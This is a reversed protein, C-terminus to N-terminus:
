EFFCRNIKEIFTQKSLSHLVKLHNKQHTNSICLVQQKGCGIRGQSGPHLVVNADINKIKKVYISDNPICFEYALSVGDVLGEKSLQQTDFNIKHSQKPSCATLWFLYIGLNIYLGIQYKM